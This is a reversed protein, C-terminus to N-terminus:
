RKQKFFDVLIASCSDELVGGCVEFRHNFIPFERLNIAGGAAGQKADTAGFVLRKIRAHVMAAFCMTCPELTVYLTARALRYNGLRQGAERLVLMEAHASPDNTAIPSNHKKALVVDGLTLVAGIPVEGQHRAIDAQQLAQEMFTIDINDNM